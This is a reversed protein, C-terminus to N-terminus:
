FEKEIHYDNRGQANRSILEGLFGAV